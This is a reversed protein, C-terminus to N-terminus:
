SEFVPTYDQPRKFALSDDPLLRWTSAVAAVCDRSAYGDYANPDVRLQYRKVSGDPELTSNLLDIIVIAEDGPVEKRLLRATRLGIIPHDAACEAILTAGSDALYRKPGYRDIMVRRVEANKETEIEYTTLTEPAEVIQQTVRVGHISYVGWGDAWSVAASKENHLRHSGFGRPRNSNVLERHIQRPRECVMLFDRHPYWWCASQITEEYAIGRRWLDGNLDLNGIERFFSTFAGGWYWGGCWFQGGLYNAWSKEIYSLVAKTTAEKDGVADRVAGDVAGDVADRVAGGVM